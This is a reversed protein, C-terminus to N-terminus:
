REGEGRGRKRGRDRGIGGKRGVERGRGGIRGGTSMKVGRGGCKRGGSTKKVWERMRMLDCMSETM